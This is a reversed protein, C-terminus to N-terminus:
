SRSYYASYAFQIALGLMKGDTRCASRLSGRGSDFIWWQCAWGECCKQSPLCVLLLLRTCLDVWCCGVDSRGNVSPCLSFRWSCVLRQRRHRPDFNSGEVEKEEEFGGPIPPFFPHLCDDVRFLRLLCYHLCCRLSPPSSSIDWAHHHRDLFLPLVVISILVGFPLKRRGPLISHAKRAKRRHEFGYGHDITDFTRHDEEISWSSMCVYTHIYICVYTYMHIYLAMKSLSVSFTYFNWWNRQRWVLFQLFKDHIFNWALKGAVIISTM